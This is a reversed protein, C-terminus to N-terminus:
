RAMEMHASRVHDPVSTITLAAGCFCTSRGDTAQTPLRRQTDWMRYKWGTFAQAARWEQFDVETRNAIFAAWAEEFEARAQYFTAAAGNTCERPHCGPYFGCSWGWPDEDHPIGSRLSIVGVRVDGYYIHWCAAPADPSRRRTLDPMAWSQASRAPLSAAPYPAKAAQACLPVARAARFREPSSREEHLGSWRRCAAVRHTTPFRDISARNFNKQHFHTGPGLACRGQNQEPRDTMSGAIPHEWTSFMSGFDGVFFVFLSLPKVRM